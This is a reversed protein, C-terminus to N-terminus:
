RSCDSPGRAPPAARSTVERPQSDSLRFSRVTALLTLLDAGISLQPVILALAVILAAIGMVVAAGIALLIKLGIYGAYGAKETSIQAWLRRWGEVASINELAMQPVVFDKTLVAVIAALFIYALLIVAFIGGAVILPLLHARPDRYWGSGFLVAAGAGTIIVFGAVMALVFVLQFLFYRFGPARRRNWYERIHCEKAVVSDFLVFRMMSSIYLFVIFVVLALLVLVAIGLAILLGPLIAGQLFQNSDGSNQSYPIRYSCGGGSSLEGALLGTITLRTWQGLRFPRFAQDITHQVASKVVDVAPVPM